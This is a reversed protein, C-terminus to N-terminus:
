SRGPWLMVGSSFMHTGGGFPEPCDHEQLTDTVPQASQDAPKQRALNDRFQLAGSLRIIQINPQKVAYPSMHLPLQM